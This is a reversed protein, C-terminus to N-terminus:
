FGILQVLCKIFLSPSIFQTMKSSTLEEAAFPGHAMQTGQSERGWKRLTSTQPIKGGGM